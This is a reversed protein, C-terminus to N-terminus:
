QRERSAQKSQGEIPFTLWQTPAASASCIRSHPIGNEKGLYSEKGCPPNCKMKVLKHCHKWSGPRPHLALRSVIARGPLRM